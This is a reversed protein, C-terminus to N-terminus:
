CAGFCTFSRLAENSFSVITLVVTGQQSVASLGNDVMFYRAKTPYVNPLTQCLKNARFNATHQHNVYSQECVSRLRSIHMCSINYSPVHRENGLFYFLQCARHMGNKVQYVSIPNQYIFTSTVKFVFVLSLPTM